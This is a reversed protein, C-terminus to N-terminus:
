HASRYEERDRIIPSTLKPEMKDPQPLAESTSNVGSATPQEKIMQVYREGTNKDAQSRVLVNQLHFNTLRDSGGEALLLPSSEDRTQATSSKEANNAASTASSLIAAAVVVSMKFIQKM